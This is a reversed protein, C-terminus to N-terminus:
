TVSSARCTMLLFIIYVCPWEYSVMLPSWCCSTSLWNSIAMGCSCNESSPGIKRLKARSEFISEGNFETFKEVDLPHTFHIEPVWDKPNPTPIQHTSVAKWWYWHNAPISKGTPQACSVPFHIGLLLLDQWIEDLDTSLKSFPPRLVRRQGIIFTLLLACVQQPCLGFLGGVRKLSLFGAGTWSIHAAPYCNLAVSQRHLIDTHQMATWNDTLALM